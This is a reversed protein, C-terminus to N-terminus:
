GFRVQLAVQEGTSQHMALAGLIANLDRDLARVEERQGELVVKIKGVDDESKGPILTITKVTFNSIPAITPAQTQVTVM